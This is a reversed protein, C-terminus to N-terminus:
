HLSAGSGLLNDGPGVIVHQWGTVKGQEDVWASLHQLSQPRFAGYKVDDERTWIHKVPVGVDKSILVAEVINDSMSRRGFGGGLYQPHFEVQDESIGLTSAVARLAGDAGQTGAWVEASQGDAAVDAVANLPEMQAHYVYDNYYSQEYRTGSTLNRVDGEDVLIRQSAEGSDGTLTESYSEMAVASNHGANGIFSVDLANRAMIAGHITKAVVAVGHDLTVTAVVDPMALIDAENTLAPRGGFTPIRRMASYHLGEIRVDIGYMAQGNVKAPIDYRMIDKNGILYFESPDKLLSSTDPFSSPEEFHGILEHYNKERGSSKHMVKGRHTTVESVPVGWFKSASHELIYRAKAGAERLANFYGMVTYSGVTLMTLRGGRDRGWSRGYISADVPSYEIRVREWDLNMEDALIAPLATMSGQGMEAAPNFITVMGDSHILVWASIKGDEALGTLRRVGPLAAQATIAILVGATTGLFRRRSVSATFLGQEKM